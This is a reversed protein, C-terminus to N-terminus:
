LLGHIFKNRDRVVGERECRGMSNIKLTPADVSEIRCGCRGAESGCKKRKM